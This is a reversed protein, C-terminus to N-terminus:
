KECKATQRYQHIGRYGCSLREILRLSEKKGRIEFLFLMIYAMKGYMAAFLAGRDSYYKQDYGVFWTSVEQKVTGISERCAMCCIGKKICDTIFLNDEGARYVAGGGFLRSFWINNHVLCERRVAIRFAGYRLCNHMRVRHNHKIIYEPRSPNMSQLNFVAVGVNPHKRFFNIVTEQYNDDYVVDDDAFLCIDGKAYMLTLNRNIGVGRTDTTIMRAYHGDFKLEELCTRDAQNAFVVDSQINMQQILSFDKQHMTVCLIELKM